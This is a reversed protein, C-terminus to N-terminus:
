GRDLLGATESTPALGKSIAARAMDAACTIVWGRDRLSSKCAIRVHMMEFGRHPEIWGVVKRM